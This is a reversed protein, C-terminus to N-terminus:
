RITRKGGTGVPRFGPSARKRASGTPSEVRSIWHDAGGTRAAWAADWGALTRTAEALAWRGLPVILGSEEAVPIFREPSHERGAEDTWRALAEFSQVRGTVLDCVPQYTLRMLGNEIARRLATEIGFQERVADFADTRYTETRGSAKATKAAFQAHRVLEGPDAPCGAGFAIGIACCVRIEYESLRFPNALAGRLRKALHDADARDDIAMLIGFEDGGIRALVDPGRLAGRLRRAVSLLLEDGTLGGLCANIRSFRELNVVVVAHRAREPATMAELTDGFGLRNPLGTLSDSAMERRLNQEARREATQDLLSVLCRGVGVSFIRAFTVRYHRQEVGSGM